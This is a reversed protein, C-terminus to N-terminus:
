AARAALDFAGSWWDPHWLVHLQGEGKVEQGSVPESWKGGSDSLYRGRPLFISNYALGFDALPRPRLVVRRHGREISRTPSGMEPRACEVFMEDNVFTIKGDEYCLPDGHAAVGTVEVGYSRLRNLATTLITDPDGGNLLACAIANSHIGVEHGRETMYDVAEGLALDDDWYIASHLLFFTSRYGRNAEWEAIACATTLSGAHGDVDHRLGIVDVATKGDFVERMSVVFRARSLLGDLAVLDERRFRM